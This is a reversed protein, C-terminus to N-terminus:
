APFPFSLRPAIRNQKADEGGSDILANLKDDIERIVQEHRKIFEAGEKVRAASKTGGDRYVFERADNRAAELRAIREDHDNLGGGSDPEAM